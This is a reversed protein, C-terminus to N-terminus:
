RHIIKEAQAGAIDGSGHLYELGLLLQKGIEKLENLDLRRRCTILQRLDGHCAQMALNTVRTTSTSEDFCGYYRILNRNDGQQVKSLIELERQRMRSHAPDDSNQIAKLAVYEPRKDTVDLHEKKKWLTVQGFAGRGLFAVRDYEEIPFTEM